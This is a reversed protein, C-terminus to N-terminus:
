GERNNYSGLIQWDFVPTSASGSLNARVRVDQGFFVNVMHDVTFAQEVTGDNGGYVSRWVGDPGKFQWTLTGTGSDIHCSLTNWGRVMVEDGNTDSTLSGYGSNRTM